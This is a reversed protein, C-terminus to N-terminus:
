QSRHAITDGFTVVTVSNDYLLPICTRDDWRIEYGHCCAGPVIAMFGSFGATTLQQPINTDDQVHDDFAYHLAYENMLSTIAENLKCPIKDTVYDLDYTGSAASAATITQILRDSWTQRKAIRNQKTYVYITQAPPIKEVLPATSAGFWHTM